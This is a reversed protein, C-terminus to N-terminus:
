KNNYKVSWAPAMIQGQYLLQSIAGVAPATKYQRVKECTVASQISQYQATALIYGVM